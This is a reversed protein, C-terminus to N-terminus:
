GRTRQRQALWHMTGKMRAYTDLYAKFYEDYAEVEPGPWVTDFEPAMAAAGAALDAHAGAAVAACVAAGLCTAHAVKSVHLPRGTAGAIIRLWLPNGAGSGSVRVEQVHRGGRELTELINRIAYACGELVARYLHPPGHQLTLGCVNGRAFPDFYPTRNGHLADFVVLGGAGPPIGEALVQITAYEDSGFGIGLLKLVWEVTSGGSTQGAEYVPYGRRVGDPFPGMIGDIRAARNTEAFLVTSTGLTLAANGPGLANLGIPATWGDMGAHAVVCRPGLGLAAAAEPLLAGLPEGVYVVDDPGKDALDPLGIREYFEVPWSREPTWHRKGGASGTSTTWRGCLRFLLWDVGEVIRDAEAYVEPENREVWLAKPLTWEPSVRGGCSELAPGDTATIEAAEEAARIDMWLIAPRLVTGDNKAFVGTFSTGDCAIAAVEEGHVGARALCGRVAQRLANWWDEPNQEAWNPHPYLTPYAHSAEALLTGDARYLVARLSQTGCDVGLYCAGAM